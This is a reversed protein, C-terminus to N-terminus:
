ERSRKHKCLPFAMYIDFTDIAADASYCVRACAGAKIAQDLYQMQDDSLGGDKENVRDSRKMEIALFSYDGRPQQYQVDFVGSRFGESKFKNILGWRGKQTSGGAWMGSPVAFFLMPLFSPDHQYKFLVAHVFAAQENHESPVLLNRKPM